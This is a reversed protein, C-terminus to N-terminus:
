PRASANRTSAAASADTPSASTSAVAFRVPLARMSSSVSTFPHPLQEDRLGPERDDHRERHGREDRQRAAPEAARDPEHRHECREGRECETDGGQLAPRRGGVRESCQRGPAQGDAQHTIELQVNAPGAPATFSLTCSAVNQAFKHKIGASWDITKTGSAVTGDDVVTFSAGTMVANGTLTMGAFTPAQNTMLGDVAAQNLTQWSKDGRWYQATTGPLIAPEYVTAHTHGALAYRADGRTQDYYQPHDDDSLGTLDHHASIVGQAQEMTVWRREGSALSSLVQNDTVPTGLYPEFQPAGTVGSWPVSAAADVVGDDNTDYVAKRMDGTGVGAITTTM